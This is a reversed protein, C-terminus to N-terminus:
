AGAQRLAERKAALRDITRASDVVFRTHRGRAIEEVADRVTFAFSVRRGQVGDIRVDIRVRAGLPTAGVHDILVQTGVSNEGPDLHPLLAEHCAYEMDHVVSPTAYVRAAPGMFTICRHEDVTVHKTFTPAASLSPKM